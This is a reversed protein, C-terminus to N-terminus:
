IKRIKSANNKPSLILPKLDRSLREVQNLKIKFTKM